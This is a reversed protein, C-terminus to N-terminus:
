STRRSLLYPLYAQMGLCGMDAVLKDESFYSSVLKVKSHELKKKKREGLVDGTSEGQGKPICAPVLTGENRTAVV